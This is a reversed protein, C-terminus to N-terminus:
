KAAVGKRMSEAMTELEESSAGRIAKVVYTMAGPFEIKRNRYDSYFADVGDRLQGYTIGAFSTTNKAVNAYAIAFCDKPLPTLSLCSYFPAVDTGSTFGEVFGQVLSARMVPTYQDRWASGDVRWGAVVASSMVSLAAVFLWLRTHYIRM